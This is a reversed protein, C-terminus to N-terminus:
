ARMVKAPPQTAFKDAERTAQRYRQVRSTAGNAVVLIPLMPAFAWLTIWPDISAMIIAAAVALVLAGFLDNMWLAFM